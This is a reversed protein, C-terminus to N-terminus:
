GVDLADKFVELEFVFDLPHLLRVDEIENDLLEAVDIQMGSMHRILVHTQNEFVQDATEVFERVLRGAIM